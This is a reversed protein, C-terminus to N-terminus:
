WHAPPITGPVAMPLASLQLISCITYIMGSEFINRMASQLGSKPRDERLAYRKNEREVIWIRWVILALSMFSFSPSRSAIFLPGTKPIVTPPICHSPFEYFM